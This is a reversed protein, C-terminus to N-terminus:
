IAIRTGEHAAVQGFTWAGDVLASVATERIVSPKANPQIQKSAIQRVYAPIRLVGHSSHGALDSAILHDALIRTPEPEAGAGRFIRTATDHLQDPSRNPM